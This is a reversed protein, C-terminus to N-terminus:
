FLVSITRTARPPGTTPMSVIRQLVRCTSVMVAGRTKHVTTPTVPPSTRQHLNQRRLVLRLHLQLLLPTLGCDSTLLHQAGQCFRKTNLLTASPLPHHSMSNENAFSRCLDLFGPNGVNYRDLDSNFSSNSMHSIFLFIPVFWQRFSVHRCYGM